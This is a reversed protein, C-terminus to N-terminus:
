IATSVQATSHMPVISSLLLFFAALPARLAAASTMAQHYRM